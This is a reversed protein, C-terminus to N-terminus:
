HLLWAGGEKLLHYEIEWGNLKWSDMAIEAASATHVDRRPSRM